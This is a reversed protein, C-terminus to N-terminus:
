VTVRVRGQVAAVLRTTTAKSEEVVVGFVAAVLVAALEVQDVAVRAGLHERYLTVQVAVLVVDVLLNGVVYVNELILLLLSSNVAGEALLGEKQLFDKALRLRSRTCRTLRWGGGQAQPQPSARGERRRVLRWRAEQVEV